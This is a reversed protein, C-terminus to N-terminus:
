LRFYTEGSLDELPMAEELNLVEFFDRFSVGTMHARYILLLNNDHLCCPM